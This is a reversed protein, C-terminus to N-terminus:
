QARLFPNPTLLGMVQGQDVLPLRSSAVAIDVRSQAQGPTDSLSYGQLGISYPGGAGRNAAVQADVAPACCATAIATGLALDVRGITFGYFKMSLQAQSTEAGAASSAGTADISAGDSVGAISLHSAGNVGAFQGSTASAVGEVTSSNLSLVGFPPSAVPTSGSIALTSASTSTQPDPPLALAAIDIAADASGATLRDMEGATLLRTGRSLQVTNAECGALIPIALFVMARWRFRNGM